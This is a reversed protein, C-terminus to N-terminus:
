APRRTKPPPPVDKSRKEVARRPTRADALQAELSAVERMHAADRSAIEARMESLEARLRAFDAQMASQAQAIGEIRKEERKADLLYIEYPREGEYDDFFYRPDLGMGDKMKRVIDAGIGRNRGRDPNRFVNIYGSKVGTRRALETQGIGRKELQVVLYHMRMFERTKTTESPKGGMRRADRTERRSKNQSQDRSNYISPCPLSALLAAESAGCEAGFSAPVPLDSM